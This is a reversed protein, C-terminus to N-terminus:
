GNHLVHNIHIFAIGINAAFEEDTNSDGIYVTQSLETQKINTEKFSSPNPKPIFENALIFRIKSDLGQWNIQKIKNKQQQPNGNTIVCITKSCHISDVLLQHVHPHIELPKQLKINRLIFLCNELYYEPLSYTGIMKNFLNVRGSTEFNSKLFNYMTSQDIGFRVESDIAIEKYAPYLYDSEDYITNDLDFLIHSYKDFENM